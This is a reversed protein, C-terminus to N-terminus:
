KGHAKQELDKLKKKLEIIRKEREMTVKNFRDLENMRKQLEANMRARETVDRAMALIGQPQNDTDRLFNFVIEAIIISGNKHNLEIELARSRSIDKVGAKEHAMEEAFVKQALEYSQPSFAEAMSRKMAEEVTYGVLRTISPSIYTPNMELDVTWIVDTANEALLRYRTESIRLAEEARKRETIDSAFVFMRDSDRLYTVSIRIDIISGEKRKHRTEFRDSGNEKIKQIRALVAEANEMVELDAIKMQLLEARSYGIMKCYSDNVEIINGQLDTMWFGDISTEIVTQYRQEQQKRETVDFIAGDLWLLTGKDDYIGQGKETVWRITGDRHLLRYDLAYPDKKKIKQQILEYVLDRDDPYIISNYSREKNDIFDAAPYGSLSEISDSIFYMTWDQDNVCRYVAGPLNNVLTRYQIESQKILEEAQKRETIDRVLHVIKVAKGTEDLIPSVTVSIWRDLTPEFLEAHEEKKSSAFKEVPCGSLPNDLNHFIEYCKRGVIEERTKGLMQCLMRNVNLITFDPSQISVGDAMADFTAAWEQAAKVIQEEANKRETIDVAFGVIGIIEGKENKYPIKDTQVWKLGTKTQMPEVINLKPQGSDIVKKDDQWYQDAEEKPYLEYLSKGELQEKTSAMSKAMALNVRVFHNEKDKYFIMAPTSDLITSLEEEKKRLANEIRTRETIDESIGLLYVPAGKEDLIPIKKTHLIREGKDKTMIKEEPINLEKKGNLVERDKKVFHDAEDQPFFDYDNKGYLNERSHGLLIEGAKNFLKFRLTEADKVFIMDPINEVINNLFSQNEKLAAMAQRRETIDRVFSLMYKQGGIEILSTNIEVPIRQGEKTIHESEFLAKGEKQIKAMREPILKTYEPSDIKAPGLALLEERTYHLMQCAIQNVDMFQLNGPDMTHLYVAEASGEILSRYKQESSILEQRVKEEETIDRFIAAVKDGVPYIINHMYQDRQADQYHVLPVIKTEGTRACEVIAKYIDTKGMMPFFMKIDQGLVDQRLLNYMKEAARNWDAVIIEQGENKVEYLAFGEAMADFIARYQDEFDALEQSTSKLSLWIGLASAVANLIYQEDPLVFPKNESYYMTVEGAERGNVILPTTLGYELDDSYKNTSFTEEEIAILPVALHSHTMAAVLAELVFHITHDITDNEQLKKTILTLSNLQRLRSLRLQEQEKQSTLDRFIILIKAPKKNADNLLVPQLTVPFVSSDKRTYEQEISAAKGQALNAEQIVQSEQQHWKAPTLDRHTKQVLEERTFGLMALAAPNAQVIKGHLDLELLGEYMAESILKHLDREEVM